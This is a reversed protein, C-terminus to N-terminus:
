LMQEYYERMYPTFLKINEESKFLQRCITCISSFHEEIQIHSFEQNSMVIEIFWRFGEKRMIYLLLNANMKEITKDFSQCARDNLILATDFVAPSCCPYVNGDFHYVPEYGPCELQELNDISYIKQFESDAMNEAEGVAILPYKTLPIGLAAEDLEEIVKNGMNSKSVAINVVVRISPYKRSEELINKICDTKVFKAHFDDHSISLNTVGLEKMDKFYIKVKEVNAGWFGNSILTSKKGCSHVIELLEKLFSYNLFIEGGTFSIVKIKLNNSFSKVLEIIESKEMSTKKSPSCSFCCHECTANCRAGLNIVVSEYLYTM